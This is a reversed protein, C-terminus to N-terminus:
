SIMTLLFYIVIAGVLGFGLLKAIAYAGLMKLMRRNHFAIVFADVPLLQEIAPTRVQRVLMVVAICYLM